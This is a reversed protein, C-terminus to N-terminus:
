DNPVDLKVGLSGYINSNQKRLHRETITRFHQWYPNGTMNKVRIQKLHIDTADLFENKM